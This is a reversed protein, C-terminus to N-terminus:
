SAQQAVLLRFHNHMVFAGDGRRFPALGDTVAARVREEGVLAIAREGGASGLLGRV